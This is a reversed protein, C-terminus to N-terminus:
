TTIFFFMLIFPVASVVIGVTSVWRAASPRSRLVSIMGVFLGVVALLLPLWTPIGAVLTVIAALGAVISVVAVADIGGSPAQLTQPRQTPDDLDSM